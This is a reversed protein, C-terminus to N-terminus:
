WKWSEERPTGGGGWNMTRKTRGVGRRSEPATKFQIKVTMNVRSLLRDVERAILEIEEMASHTERYSQTQM